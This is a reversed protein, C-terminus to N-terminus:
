TALNIEDARYDIRTGPTVPVCELLSNSLCADTVEESGGLLTFCLDWDTCVCWSKDPPWWYEPTFGYRPDYLFSTAETLKGLFLRQINPEGVNWYEALRYYSDHGVTCAELVGALAECTDGDLRGEDPGLLYRPWSGHPFARRFSEPNLEARFIIGHKKALEKWLVRDGKIANPSSSRVLTSKERLTAPLGPLREGGLEGRRQAEDWTHFRDEVMVDEYIPHFIKIYSRFTKPLCHSVHCHRCGNLHAPLPADRGKEIWDFVVADSSPHM